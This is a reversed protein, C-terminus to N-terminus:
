GRNRINKQLNQLIQLLSFVEEEDMDRFAISCWDRLSDTIKRREEGGKETLHFLWSRGDQPNRSRRVRGQKELIQLTRTMVSKDYYVTQLLSEATQGDREYLALLVLAAAVTLERPALEAKLFGKFQRDYDMMIRGISMYCDSMCVDTM